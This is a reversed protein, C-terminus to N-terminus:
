LGRSGRRPWTGEPASRRIEPVDNLLLLASALVLAAIIVMAHGGTSTVLQADRRM